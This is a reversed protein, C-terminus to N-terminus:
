EDKKKGNEAQLDALFKATNEKYMLYQVFMTFNLVVSVAFGFLVAMDGTEKLTTFIRALGGVLNMSLTVISQAGTQQVQFTERVQLGRSYLLIVSNSAQLLYQLDAPLRSVLLVYLIVGAFLLVKEHRGIPPHVTFKWIMAILVMNQLCLALNEGYATVPHSALLGYAAGNAYVFSESYMSVRSFGVSSKSQMMNAMIPTKNLCSGLIIAVGLGKTILQSLCGGGIFPGLSFPLHDICMHPSVDNSPDAGWVWEALPIVFPLDELQVM